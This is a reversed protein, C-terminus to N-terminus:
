GVIFKSLFKSGLFIGLIVFPLYLWGNLALSSVASYFGGINCGLAVRSGYGMLFGGSLALFLQKKDKIKKFKFRGTLLISILAGVVIGFNSWFIFDSFPSIIEFNINQFTIGFLSLFWFIFNMFGSSIRWHQGTSYFYFINATAIILAGIWYPWINYNLYKIPHFIISKIKLLIEKYNERNFSNTLASFFSSLSRDERIILLLYIIALLFLQLLIGQTWNFIAPLHFTKDSFTLSNWFSQDLGGRLSGLLFGIVVFHQMQYGEGLRFLTGSACGGSVSAGLGFIFAGIPIYFGPILFKGALPLGAKLQYFQIIGFGLTTVMLSLVVARSLKTMGFLLPDRFAATFCIKSKQMAFGIVLGLLLSYALLNEIQILFIFLFFILAFIIVAAKQQRKKRQQYLKNKM